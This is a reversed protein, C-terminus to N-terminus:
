RIITMDRDMYAKLEQGTTLQPYQQEAKQKQIHVRSVHRLTDGSPLPDHPSTTQLSNLSNM